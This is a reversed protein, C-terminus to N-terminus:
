TLCEVQPYSVRNIRNILDEYYCGCLFMNKINSCTSGDQEFDFAEDIDKALIDLLQNCNYDPNAYYYKRNDYTESILYNNKELNSMATIMSAEFNRKKGVCTNRWCDVTLFDVDRIVDDASKANTANTNILSKIIIYEEQSTRKRKDKM